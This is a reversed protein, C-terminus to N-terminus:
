CVVGVITGTGAHGPNGQYGADTKVIVLHLTDGGIVPGSKGISSSVIVALYAPITAPPPPSNGPDTTWSVGCTPM